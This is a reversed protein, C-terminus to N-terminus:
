TYCMKERIGLVIEDICKDMDINFYKQTIGAEQLKDASFDAADALFRRCLEEYKPESQMRERSLARELRLGDEVEIYIPILKEDGFYKRLQIYSELTGIAILHDERDFQGDDATFYKWIGHVTNYERLEIVKGAEQLEQSRNDDVFFYEVGDQEGERIPRTTYIVITKLEPLEEKVKKYITDKGSASKGMLYFIKGM